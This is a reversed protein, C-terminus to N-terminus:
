HIVLASFKQEINKEKPEIALLNIEEESSAGYIKKFRVDIWWKSGSKWVKNCYKKALWHIDQGGLNSPIHMMSAHILMKDLDSAFITGLVSDQLVNKYFVKDNEPLIMWSVVWYEREELCKEMKERLIDVTIKDFM